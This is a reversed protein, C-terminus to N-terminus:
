RLGNMYCSLPNRSKAGQSDYLHKESARYNTDPQRSKTGQNGPSPKQNGPNPEQNEPHLEMTFTEPQRPKVYQNGQSPEMVAWATFAVPQKSKIGPERSKTGHNQCVLTLPCISSPHGPWSLYSQQSNVSPHVVDFITLLSLLKDGGHGWCGHDWLDTLKRISPCCWLNDFSFCSTVEADMIGLTKTFCGAVALRFGWCYQQFLHISFPLWSPDCDFCTVTQWHHCCFSM